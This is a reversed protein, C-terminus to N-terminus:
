GPWRAILAVVERAVYWRGPRGRTRVGPEAEVVVGRSALVELATRASRESVDLEAALLAATTVPRRALVALASRAAADSRLDGVRDEWGELVREVEDLVQATASGSREVIAAFWRVWPDLGGVRFQALGALYGGPDRGILVSVAPPSGALGLRRTLLWSVLVRGIRGNGDGYPHITEFQAHVLAAQSVPDLDDSNAFAVLDHVLEDLREAPPPVYVANTPATGGIWGPRDRFRGVLEAPLTGHVMLREHWRHLREITLPERAAAVAEDLVRLNDVVWAATGDVAVDADPGAEAAVVVEVPARLGEIDSSALGEARLLLRGLAELATGSRADALRVAAVARETARVTTERLRELESRRESLLAPLWATAPRGQWDFVVEEGTVGDDKWFSPAKRFTPNM